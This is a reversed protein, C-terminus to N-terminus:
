EVWVWAFMAPHYDCTITFKGAENFTISRKDGAAPGIDPKNATGNITITHLGAVNEFVIATGVAVKVGGVNSASKQGDAQVIWDYEPVTQTSLITVETSVVDPEDPEGSAAPTGTGVGPLTNFVSNPVAYQVCATGNNKEDSPASGWSDEPILLSTGIAVVSDSKLGNAEAIMGATTNAMTGAVDSLSQGQVVYGAGRPLTLVTQQSLPSAASLSNAQAIDAPTVGHSAAVADWTDGEQVTYWAGTPLKLATGAAPPEAQSMTNLTALEDATIGHAKAVDAITQGPQVIAVDKTLRLRNAAPIVDEEALGSLSLDNAAVLQAVTLGHAEATAKLTDGASVTYSVAEPLTLKDGPFLGAVPVGEKTLLELTAVGRKVTLKYDLKTLDAIIIAGVHHAEAIKTITENDKYVTYTYGDPIARNGPIKLVTGAKLAGEVPLKNAAALQAPGIGHARAVIGLTDGGVVTTSHHNLNHAFEEAETWGFNTANGFDDQATAPATILNVLHEIQIANLAGGNAKLWAPMLTGARGCQLTRRILDRNAQLVIPDQDKFEPKNLTPGVGGEGKNGHCSRCNNAFLLAGREISQDDSWEVQDPARVTLDIATYAACGGVFIFTLIVMLVIQKQTNL